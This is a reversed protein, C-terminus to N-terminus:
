FVRGRISYAGRGSHAERGDAHGRRRLESVCLGSPDGGLRAHLAVRLCARRTKVGPQQVRRYREETTLFNFHQRDNVRSPQPSISAIAAAYRLCRM